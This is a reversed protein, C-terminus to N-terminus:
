SGRVHRRPHMASDFSSVYRSKTGHGSSFHPGNAALIIVSIDDDHAARDFADNLAYLLETNQANRTEPRNLVLRAIRPSPTEYLV